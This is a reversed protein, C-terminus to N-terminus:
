GSRTTAGLLQRIRAEFDPPYEHGLGEVIESTVHPGRETLAAALEPVREALPDKSGALIAIRLRRASPQLHQPDGIFPAVMVAAEAPFLTGGLASLLALWAGQSFGALVLREYAPLHGAIEMMDAEVRERPPDWCFGTPTSPQSSQAAAVTYGLATAPRWQDLELAANGTAGHFSLLLPRAGSPNASEVLLVPRFHHRAMREHAEAVLQAADPRSLDLEIAQLLSVRWLLDADLATRLTAVAEAQRGVRAHTAAEPYWDWYPRESM